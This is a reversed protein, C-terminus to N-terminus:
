DVVFILGSRIPYGLSSIKLDSIITVSDIIMPRDELSKFAFNTLSYNSTYLPGPYFVSAISL